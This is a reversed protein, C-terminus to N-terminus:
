AKNLHWELEKGFHGFMTEFQQETPMGEFHFLSIDDEKTKYSIQTQFNDGHSVIVDCVFMGQSPLTIPASRYTFINKDADKRLVIKTKNKTFCLLLPLFGLVPLMYRFQPLFLLSIVFLAIAIFTCLLVTGALMESNKRTRIAGLESDYIIDSWDLKM